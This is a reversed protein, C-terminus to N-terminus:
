AQRNRRHVPSFGRPFLNSSSGVVPLYLLGYGLGATVDLTQNQKM